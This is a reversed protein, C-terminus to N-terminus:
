YNIHHPNTEIRYKKLKCFEDWLQKLDEMNVEPASKDIIMMQAQPIAYIPGASLRMETNRIVLDINQFLLNNRFQQYNSPCISLAQNIDKELSYDFLFIINKDVNRSSNLCKALDVIEQPLNESHTVLKFSLNNEELFKTDRLDEFIKVIAKYVEESSRDPRKHLYSSGAYCILAKSRNEVIFFHSFLKLTKGGLCYSDFLPINEQKAFRRHGDPIYLIANLKEM